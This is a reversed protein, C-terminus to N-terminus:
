TGKWFATSRRRYTVRVESESSPLKTITINNNGPLLHWFESGQSLYQAWNTTGVKGFKEMYGTTIVLSQGSTLSFGSFSLTKGTRANTLTVDTISGTPPGLIEWTPHAADDGGPDITFTHTSWAVEDEAKVVAANAIPPDQEWSRDLLVFRIEDRMQPVDLPSGVPQEFSPQIPFARVRWTDPEAVYMSRAFYLLGENPEGEYTLPRLYHQVDAVVDLLEASVSDDLHIQLPVAVEGRTFRVSNVAAHSGDSAASLDIDVPTGGFYGTRGLVHFRDFQGFDLEEGDGNIFWLGYRQQPTTM